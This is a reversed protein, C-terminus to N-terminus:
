LFDHLQTTLGPSSLDIHASVHQVPLCHTLHLPLPHVVKILYVNDGLRNLRLILAFFAVVLALIPLAIAVIAVGFGVCSGAIDVSGM